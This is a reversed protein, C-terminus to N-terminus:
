IHQSMLDTVTRLLDQEDRSKEVDGTSSRSLNTGAAFMSPSVSRSPGFVRSLVFWVVILVPIMLDNGPWEISPGRCLRLRLPRASVEIKRRKGNPGLQPHLSPVYWWAGSGLEDVGDHVQRVHGGPVRSSIVSGVPSASISSCIRFRQWSMLVRTAPTLQRSCVVNGVQRRGPSYGM